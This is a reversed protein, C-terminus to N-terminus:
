ANSVKEFERALTSRAYHVLPFLEREPDLAFALLGLNDSRHAYYERLITEDSVHARHIEPLDGTDYRQLTEEAGKLWDASACFLALSFHERQFTWGGKAPTRKQSPFATNFVDVCAFWHARGPDREAIARAKAIFQWCSPPYWHFSKECRGGAEFVTPAFDGQDTRLRNVQWGNRKWSDACALFLRVSDAGKFKEWENGPPLEVGWGNFWINIVSM